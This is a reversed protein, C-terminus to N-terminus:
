AFGRRTRATAPTRTEAGGAATALLDALQRTSELQERIPLAAVPEVETVDLDVIYLRRDTRCRLIDLTGWDLGVLRLFQEIALGEEDSFVQSPAVSARRVVADPTFRDREHRAEVWAVVPRGGICHTRLDTVHAGDSTDIWKQYSKGPLPRMPCAVFRADRMGGGDSKEVAWGVYREPDILLPYGFARHFVRAAETRSHKACRANISRPRTAGAFGLALDAEAPSRAVRMGGWAIASRISRDSRATTPGLWIAPPRRASLANGFAKLAVLIDFALSRGLERWEGARRRAPAALDRARHADEHLRGAFSQFM